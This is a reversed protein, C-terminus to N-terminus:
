KCATCYKANYIMGNLCTISLSLAAFHSKWQRQGANEQSISSISSFGYSTLLLFQLGIDTEMTSAM